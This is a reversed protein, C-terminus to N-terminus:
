KKASGQRSGELGVTEAYCSNRYQRPTKGVLRRFFRVFNEPSAFGTKQGITAIPWATDRLLVKAQEIRIRNIEQAPSCGFFERFRRELTSRSVLMEEALQAVTLGHVADRAIIKVAQDLEPDIIAIRDSSERMVVGSPPVLILTKLRKRAAKDGRQARMKADLLWAAKYGVEQPNLEISSLPPSLLRCVIDDNSTGLVGIDAPVHLNLRRCAELIRIAQSDAVAWIGVPKPLRDLWGLLPAEFQQKWTPYPVNVGQFAGPFVHGSLGRSRVLTEFADRRADSWWSQAISYFALHEFGQKLLHEVAFEATLDEDTRVEASRHKGDGLLEVVPCPFRGIADALVRSPSRAIIGDGEWHHLWAPLGELIGRDEFHFIWNAHQQAYRSIGQIVGRGFVRSTEVLLLIQKPRAMFDAKGSL